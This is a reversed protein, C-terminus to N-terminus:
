AFGPVLELILFGAESRKSGRFVGSLTSPIRQARSFRSQSSAGGLAATAM